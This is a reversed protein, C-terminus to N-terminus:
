FLFLIFSFGEPINTDRSWAHRTISRGSTTASPKHRSYCILPFKLGLYLPGDFKPSHILTPDCIDLPEFRIVLKEPPGCVLCNLSVIDLWSLFGIHIVYPM